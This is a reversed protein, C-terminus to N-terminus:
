RAYFMLYFLVCIVTLYTWMTSFASLSSQFRQMDHTERVTPPQEVFSIAPIHRARMLLMELWILACFQSFLFVPYFGSFVSAFGSGGPPFPLKLLQIIQITVAALGLALAVWSVTAWTSKHGLKIRQLGFYALGASCVTLLMIVTGMWLQPSAPPAWRGASDLSRLYFYSFAFAGYLFTLGGILLRVGTWNANLGCEQYFGEDEDATTM